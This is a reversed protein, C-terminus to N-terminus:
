LVKNVQLAVVVRCDKLVPLVQTEKFVQQDLLVKYELLVLL